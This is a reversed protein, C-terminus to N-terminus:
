GGSLEDPQSSRTVKALFCGHTPSHLHLYSTTPNDLLREICLRLEQQGQALEAAQIHHRTSLARVAVRKLNFMDPIHAPAFYGSPHGDRIYIAHSSRYPSDVDLHTYNLLLMREGPEPLALSVRCPYGNPTKAIETIVGQRALAEDSLGYLHNFQQHDLATFQFTM